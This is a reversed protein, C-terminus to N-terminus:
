KKPIFATGRVALSDDVLNGGGAIAGLFEYSPDGLGPKKAVYVSPTFQISDGTVADVLSVPISGMDVEAGRGGIALAGAVTYTVDWLQIIDDELSLFHSDYRNKATEPYIPIEKYYLLLQGDVRESTFENCVCDAGNNGKAMNSLAIHKVANFVAGSVNFYEQVRTGDPYEIGFGIEDLAGDASMMVTNFVATLAEIREESTSTRKSLVEVIEETFAEVSKTRALHGKCADLTEKFKEYYAATIGANANRKLNEWDYFQGMVVNVMMDRFMSKAIERATIQVRAGNPLANGVSDTDFRFCPDYNCQRSYHKWECLELESTNHRIGGMQPHECENEFKDVPTLTMLDSFPIHARKKRENLAFEIYQYPTFNMLQKYLAAQGVQASELFVESVFQPPISLGASNIDGNPLLMLPRRINNNSM